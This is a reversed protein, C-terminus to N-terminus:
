ILNDSSSRLNASHMTSTQDAFHLFWQFDANKRPIHMTLFADFNRRFELILCKPVQLQTLQQHIPQRCTKSILNFHHLEVEFIIAEFTLYVRILLIDFESFILLKSWARCPVLTADAADFGIDLLCMNGYLLVYKLCKSNSANQISLSKRNKMM